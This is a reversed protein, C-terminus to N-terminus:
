RSVNAIHFKRGIGYEADYPCLWSEEGNAAGYGYFFIASNYFWSVFSTCELM